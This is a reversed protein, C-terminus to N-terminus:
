PTLARRRPAGYACQDWSSPAMRRPTTSSRTRTSSTGAVITATMPRAPAPLARDLDTRHRGRDVPPTRCTTVDRQSITLSLSLSLSLSLNLTLRPHWWPNPAESLDIDVRIERLADCDEVVGQPRRKSILGVRIKTPREPSGHQGLVPGESRCGRAISRTSAGSSRGAVRMRPALSDIPAETSAPAPVSRARAGLSRQGPACPHAQRTADCCRDPMCVSRSATAPAM